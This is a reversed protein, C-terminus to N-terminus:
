IMLDYRTVMSLCWLYIFFIFFKIFYFFSISLNMIFIWFIILNLFYTPYILNLLATFKIILEFFIELRTVFVSLCILIILFRFIFWFFATYFIFFYFAIYFILFYFILYYCNPWCMWFYVHSTTILNWFFFILNYISMETFSAYFLTFINWFWNGM